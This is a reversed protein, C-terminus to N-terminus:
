DLKLLDPLISDSEKLGELDVSRNRFRLALIRGEPSRSCITGGTAIKCFRDLFCSDVEPLETEISVHGPLFAKYVGLREAPSISHSEHKLARALDPFSKM